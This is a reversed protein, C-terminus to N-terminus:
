LYEAFEQIVDQYLQKKFPVIIDPLTEPAAWKWEHFEPEDTDINIEHDEGQFQMLFWKQKQGRYKGGWLEPVLKHPLDYYFWDNSKAIITVNTTGTEEGLERLAATAEDESEDIGGQPMQWADSRTDIRSGVFVEGNKNLLMIGVCPRYPLSAIAESTLAM